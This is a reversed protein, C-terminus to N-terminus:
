ACPQPAAQPRVISASERFFHERYMVSKKIMCLFTTEGQPEISEPTAIFFNNSLVDHGNLAKDIHRAKSLLGPGQTRELINKIKERCM